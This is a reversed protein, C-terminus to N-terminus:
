VDAAILDREQIVTYSVGDIIMTFSRTKEYMVTTGEKIDEVDGGSAIVTAKQARSNSMDQQSLILGDKTRNEEKIDKLFIYKSVPKM